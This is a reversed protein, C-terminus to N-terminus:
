GRRQKRRTVLAVAAEAWSVGDITVTSVPWLFQPAWRRRSHMPLDILIHLAWAKSEAAPWQRRLVRVVVAYVAVVLFRHALHHVTAMWTPPAPWDNTRLAHRLQGTRIVWAPYTVYFPADPALGAIIVTPESGILTRTVLLHTIPDM